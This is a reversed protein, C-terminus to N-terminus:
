LKLQKYKTNQRVREDDITILAARVHHPFQDKFSLKQGVVQGELDLAVSRSRGTERIIM